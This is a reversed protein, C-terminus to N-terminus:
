GGREEELGLKVRVRRRGGGPVGGVKAEKM